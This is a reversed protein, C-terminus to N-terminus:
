QSLNWLNWSEYESVYGSESKKNVCFLNQQLFVSCKNEQNITIAKVNYM